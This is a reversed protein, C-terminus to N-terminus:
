TRGRDFQDGGAHSAGFCAPTCCDAGLNVRSDSVRSNAVIRSEQRSRHRVIKSGSGPDDAPRIAATYRGRQGQSKGPMEELSRLLERAVSPFERQRAEKSSSVLVAFPPAFSARIRNM